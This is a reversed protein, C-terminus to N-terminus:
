KFVNGWDDRREIGEYKVVTYEVRPRVHVGKGCCLTVSTVREVHQDIHLRTTLPLSLQQGCHPCAQTM